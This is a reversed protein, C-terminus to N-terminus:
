PPDLPGTGSAIITVPGAQVVGLRAIQNDDDVVAQAGLQPSVEVAQAALKEIRVRYTGYPVGEFLFFDM